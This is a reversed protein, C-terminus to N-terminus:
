INREIKGKIIYLDVIEKLGVTSEDFNPNLPKLVVSSNDNTDRRLIRITEYLDKGNNIFCLYPEGFLLIERNEVKQCAVIDGPNYRPSMSEGHVPRYFSCDNLPPFNIYYDSHAIIVDNSSLEDASIIPFTILPVGSEKLRHQVGKNGHKLYMDGEGKELWHPNIGLKRSLVNRNRDTFNVKGNEIMSYANQGISLIDAMQKQTMGLIKRLELLRSQESM